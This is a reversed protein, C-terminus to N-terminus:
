TPGWMGIGLLTGLARIPTGGKKALANCRTGCASHCVVSILENNPRDASHWYSTGRVSCRRGVLHPMSRADSAVDLGLFTFRGHETMAPLGFVPLRRYFGDARSNM